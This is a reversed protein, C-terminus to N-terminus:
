RIETHQHTQALTDSADTMELSLNKHVLSFSIIGGMGNGIGLTIGLDSLVPILQIAWKRRYSQVLEYMPLLM